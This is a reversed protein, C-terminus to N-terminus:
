ALYGCRVIKSGVYFSSSERMQAITPNDTISDFDFFTSREDTLIKLGYPSVVFADDATHSHFCYETVGSFEIVLGVERGTSEHCRLRIEIKCDESGGDIFHINVSLIVGDSLEYFKELFGPSNIQSITTMEDNKV